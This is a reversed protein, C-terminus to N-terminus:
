ILLAGVFGYNGKPIFAAVPPRSLIRDMEMFWPDEVFIATVLTTSVVEIVDVAASALVEDEERRLVTLGFGAAPPPRPFPPPPPPPFVSPPSPPTGLWCCLM